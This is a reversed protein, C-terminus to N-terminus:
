YGGQSKVREYEKLLKKRMEAQKEEEDEDVVGNQIFNKSSLEDKSVTDNRLKALSDSFTLEQEILKEQYEALQGEQETIKAQVSSVLASSEDVKVSSQDIKDALQLVAEDPALGLIAERTQGIGMGVIPSLIATGVIAATAIIKNM